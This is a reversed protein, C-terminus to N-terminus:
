NESLQRYFSISPFITLSCLVLEVKNTHSAVTDNNSKTLVTTDRLNSCLSQLGKFVALLEAANININDDKM